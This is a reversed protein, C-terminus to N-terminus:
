FGFGGFVTQGKSASLCFGFSHVRQARTTRWAMIVLASQAPSSGGGRQQM